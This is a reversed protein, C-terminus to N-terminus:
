IIQHFLDFKNDGGGGQCWNKSNNETVTKFYLILEIRIFVIKFYLQQTNMNPLNSNSIFRSLFDVFISLKIKSDGM